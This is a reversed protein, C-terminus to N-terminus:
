QPSLIFSLSVPFLSWKGKHFLVLRPDSRDTYTALLHDEGQGPLLSLAWIPLTNLVSDSHLFTDEPARRECPSSLSIGLFPAPWPEKSYFSQFPPAQALRASIHFPMTPGRTRSQADLRTRPPWREGCPAVLNLRQLQRCEPRFFCRPNPRCCVRWLSSDQLIGHNIWMFSCDTLMLFFFETRTCISLSGNAPSLLLPWLFIYCPHVLTCLVSVKTNKLVLNNKLIYMCSGIVMPASVHIFCVLSTLLRNTLPPPWSLPILFVKTKM